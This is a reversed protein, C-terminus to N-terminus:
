QLDSIFPDQDLLPHESTLFTLLSTVQVQLWRVFKATRICTPPFLTPRFDIARAYTFYRFYKFTRKENNKYLCNRWFMALRQFDNSINTTSQRQSSFDESDYCIPDEHSNWIVSKWKEIHNVLSCDFTEKHLTSRAKIFVRKSKMHLYLSTLM